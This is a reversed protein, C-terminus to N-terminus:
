GEKRRMLYVPATGPTVLANVVEWGNKHLFNIGEVNSNFEIAQKNPGTVLLDESNAGVQPQGHDVRANYKKGNRIFNVEIYKIDKNSNIDVNNVVVQAFGSLSALCFSALLLLSKM